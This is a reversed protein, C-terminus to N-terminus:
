GLDFNVMGRYEWFRQLGCDAVVFATCIWRVIHYISLEPANTGASAGLGVRTYATEIGFVLYAAM